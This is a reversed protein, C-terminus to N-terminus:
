RRDNYRNDGIYTAFVPNLVLRPEFYEDFIRHLEQTVAPDAAQSTEV